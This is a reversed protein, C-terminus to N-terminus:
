KPRFNLINKSEELVQEQIWPHEDLIREANEKTFPVEVANELVGRWSIIRNVTFDIIAQHIEQPNLETDKGKRKNIQDRQQREAMTKRQFARVIKSEEGRVKVFIGCPEQTSPYILEFEYGAESQESLNNQKLDFMNYKTRVSLRRKM